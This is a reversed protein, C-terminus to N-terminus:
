RRPIRENREGKKLLKKIDVGPCETPRLDRHGVVVIDPFVLRFADVLDFLVATQALGWKEADRTNDGTVCVGVSDRNFGKTHAGITEITRGRLLQGTAEIIYHYGIDNWGKSKHWEKIQKATTIRPSGSHHIVLTSIDRM